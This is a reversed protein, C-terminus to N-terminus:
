LNLNNKIFNISEKRLNDMITYNIRLPMILLKANATQNYNIIRNNLGFLKGLSILRENSGIRKKFSIFPKNFIISFITGHYSDTIVAKCNVILYIFKEVTSNRNLAYDYVQFKMKQISNKKFNNKISKKKIHYFLIYNSNINICCEFNKIIKLYYNKNILLTPDLVVKPTIGLHKRILKLSGKERVSIGTFNKLLKKIIKEDQSNLAWYNFGLSAGYIFKKKNWNESFKLFGYDYFHRDFRRWTQDSNVMLIDYDNEKIESFNHKIIVLNTTKNIFSINYGKLRTGIIYPLYGLEKLKIHIAYKLLNNGINVGHRLGIVGVKLQKFNLILVILILISSKFFYQKNFYQM